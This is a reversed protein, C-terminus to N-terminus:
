PKVENDTSGRLELVFANCMNRANTEAAAQYTGSYGFARNDYYNSALAYIFLDYKANNELEPIGADTASQIAADMFIKIDQDDDPPNRLYSRLGSLTAAM